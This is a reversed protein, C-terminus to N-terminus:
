FMTEYDLTVEAAGAPLAAPLPVVFSRRGGALLNAGLLPGTKEGALTVSQQGARVTVELNSGLIAHRTGTNVLTIALQSGGNAAREIRAQEVGVAPKARAPRVYLTGQYRLTMGILANGVRARELNVPLQETIIRYNQERDLTPPGKWQVRVAQSQGPRVIMQPPFLILEDGIPTLTETGDEAITRRALRVEVALPESGDNYIRFANQSHRGSPELEVSMPEVRYAQAPGAAASLMAAALLAGAAAPVRGGRSFWSRM